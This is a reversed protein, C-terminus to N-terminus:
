SGNRGRSRGFVRAQVEEWSVLKVVGEDLEAMRRTVEDRWADEVGVDAETEDLSDLLLGALDAREGEDLRLARGLLHSVDANPVVQDARVDEEVAELKGRLYLRYLVEEIEVEDPLGEVLERLEQKEIRMKPSGWRSGEDVTDLM